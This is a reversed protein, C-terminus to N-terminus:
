KRDQGPLHSANQQPAQAQSARVFERRPDQLESTAVVQRRFPLSLLWDAAIRAKRHATPM